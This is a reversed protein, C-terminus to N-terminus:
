RPPLSLLQHLGEAFAATPCRQEILADSAAGMAEIRERPLCALRILAETIAEISRPNFCFGNVGEDVLEEAAGVNDSSLVPLGSAMAENIVLGWPESLAPHILAAAHAYFRPLEEIQRFGPFLVGPASRRPREPDWPCGAHTWLGLDGAHQLLAQREPGDGLLCLDWAQLQRNGIAQAYAAFAQLLAKLNKRPVFRNSALLYPRDPRDQQCRWQRSATRFYANDVVDFGFATREAPLGLSNLYDRQSRGAVLAGDLGRLLRRKVAEKWWVRRGDAARTDSMLIARAGHRRCWALCARADPTAWGAIAVAHPMLRNLAAAMGRRLERAPLAEAAAQPFVTHREFPTAAVEHRWAYTRDLAATELGILQWGRPVLLPAATRLRALHYPGFRVFHVALRRSATPSRTL